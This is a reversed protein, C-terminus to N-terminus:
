IQFSLTNQYGSRLTVFSVYKQYLLQEKVLINYDEILHKKSPARHLHKHVYLAFNQKKHIYLTYLCQRNVTEEHVINTFLKIECGTM